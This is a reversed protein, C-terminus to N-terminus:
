TGTVVCMKLAIMQWTMAFLKSQLLGISYGTLVIFEVKFESCYLM